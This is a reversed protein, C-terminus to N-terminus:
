QGPPRTKKFDPREVCFTGEKPTQAPEVSLAPLSVKFTMHNKVKIFITPLCYDCSKCKCKNVLLPRHKVWM